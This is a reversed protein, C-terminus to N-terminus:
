EEIFLIFYNIAQHHGDLFSEQRKVEFSVPGLARYGVYFHNFRFVLPAM